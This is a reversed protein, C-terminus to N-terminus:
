PTAPPFYSYGVIKQGNGRLFANKSCTTQNFVINSDGHIIHNTSINKKCGCHQVEIEIKDKEEDIHSIHFTKTDYESIVDDSQESYEIHNKLTIIEQYKKLKEITKQNANANQVLWLILIPYFQKDGVYIRRM